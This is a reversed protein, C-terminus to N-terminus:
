VESITVRYEVGDIAKSRINNKLVQAMHNWYKAGYSIYDIPVIHIDVTRVFGEKPKNSVMTGRKVRISIVRNNLVMKCYNKVDEVTIIQDRTTLAYKYAQLTDSQKQREAGGTTQSFLTIYQQKKQSYFQTGPRIHNALGGHSVWFTAYTHVANELPEIIVYNIEEQLEKNAIEVKKMLGKMKESIESLIDKVRDRNILSFAAVEDRLLEMLHAMLDTANRNTFREMGGRRVTYLGKGVHDNPTFPIEYYSKGQGDIVEDVYLFYEDASTDLPINNGMIDLAYETKKWSRNYVPFANLAFLFNDLIEGSFPAPFEMELWLYKKHQYNEWVSNGNDLWQPIGEELDKYRNPSFGTIHIFQSNYINRIDNKINEQISQEKFIGEYGQTNDPLVKEIGQSIHLATGNHSISIHPLLEYVFEINEFTPNACYLTLGEPFIESTYDTVDIGIKIKRYNESQTSCRAIAIKNLQEDISYVMDGVVMLGVQAKILRTNEVPTFAIEVQRDSQNKLLSNLQKKLFFETHEMLIETDENPMCFAIGHAPSPHSYKSPTLLKALKELIRGEVNQIENNTKFVETSFADILLKVFPDLSQVSKLGWLKTANQLMRSKIAEKSYHHQHISM